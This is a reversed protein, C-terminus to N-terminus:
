QEKFEKKGEEERIISSLKFLTSERNIDNDKKKSWSEVM